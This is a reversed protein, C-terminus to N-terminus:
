RKSAIKTPYSSFRRPQCTWSRLPFYWKEHSTMNLSNTGPWRDGEREDVVDEVERVEEEDKGVGGEGVGWGGRVRTRV